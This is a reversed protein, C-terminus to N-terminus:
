MGYAIAPAVADNADGAPPPEAPPKTVSSEIRHKM